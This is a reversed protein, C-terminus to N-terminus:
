AWEWRAAHSETGPSLLPQVARVVFPVVAAHQALAPLAQLLPLLSPPPEQARGAGCFLAACRVHQAPDAMLVVIM